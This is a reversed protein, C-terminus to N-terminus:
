AMHQQVRVLIETMKDYSAPKVMHHDFGAQLAKQRDTEQGYGTLAVLAVHALAPEKRLRVAVELGNLEPLGIDLLVVDPVFELAVEIAALGDHATRVSHGSV